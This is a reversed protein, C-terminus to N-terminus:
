AIKEAKLRKKGERSISVQDKLAVNKPVKAKSLRSRDTMQQGYALLTNQVQYNAIIMAM